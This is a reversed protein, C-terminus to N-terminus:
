MEEGEGGRELFCLCCRCSFNVRSHCYGYWKGCFWHCDLPNYGGSGAVFIRTPCNKMSRSSPSLPNSLSSFNPASSQWFCQFWCCEFFESKVVGLTKFACIRGPWHFDKIKQALGTLPQPILLRVLLLCHRRECSGVGGPAAVQAYGAFKWGKVKVKIGECEWKWKRVKVHILFNYKRIKVKKSESESTVKVKESECCQNNHWSNYIYFYGIM